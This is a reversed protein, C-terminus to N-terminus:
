HSATDGARSGISSHSTVVLDVNVIAEDIELEASNARAVHSGLTEFCLV